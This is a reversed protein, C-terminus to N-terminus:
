LPRNIDHKKRRGREKREDDVVDEFDLWLELSVEFDLVDEFNLVNQKGCCKKIM